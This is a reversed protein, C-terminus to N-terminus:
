EVGLVSVVMSIVNEYDPDSIMVTIFSLLFKITEEDKITNIINILEKRHEM